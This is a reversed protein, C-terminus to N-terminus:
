IHILSLGYGGLVGDVTAPVGEWYEVGKAVNPSPHVQRITTMPIPHHHHIFLDYWLLSPCSSKKKKM